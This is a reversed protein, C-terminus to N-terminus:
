IAVSISVVLANLTEQDFGPEDAILKIYDAGDEVRREVFKAADEPNAVLENKPFVPILSHKSGPACAPVGPTRFDTLGGANALEHLASILASSFSAMDLGTTVGNQALQKLNEPGHM